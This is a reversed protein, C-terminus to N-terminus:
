VSALSMRDKMASLLAEAAPTSLHHETQLFTELDQHSDFRRVGSLTLRNPSLIRYVSSLIFDKEETRYLSLEWQKLRTEGDDRVAALQEGNFVVEEQAGSQKLRIEQM